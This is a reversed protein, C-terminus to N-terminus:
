SAKDNKDDEPGGGLFASLAKESESQPLEEEAEAPLGNSGGHRRRKGASEPVDEDYGIGLKPPLLAREASADPKREADIGFPNGLASETSSDLENETVELINRVVDMFRDDVPRVTVEATKRNLCVSVGEAYALLPHKEKRMAQRLKNMRYVFVHADKLTPFPFPPLEKEFGLQFIRILEPAFNAVVLGRNAM